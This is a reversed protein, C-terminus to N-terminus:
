VTRYMITPATTTTSSPRFNTYHQKYNPPTCRVAWTRISKECKPRRPPADSKITFTQLPANQINQFHLPTSHEYHSTCTTVLLTHTWCVDVIKWKNESGSIVLEIIVIKWKESGRWIIKRPRHSEEKRLLFTTASCCRSFIRGFAEGGSPCLQEKYYAGYLYYRESHHGPCMTCYGSGEGYQGCLEQPTFGDCWETGWKQPPFACVDISM